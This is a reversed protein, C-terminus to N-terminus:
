MPSEAAAKPLHQLVLKLDEALVRLVLMQATQVFFHGGPFIRISFSNQTQKQWACLEDRSVRADTSGGFASISCELPPEARYVYNECVAFDARLVPLLLEMLEPDELVAEPTGGLERLQQQFELDARQHIPPYPNPLQPARHGSVILHVPSPLHQRRLQRALEFSVLAGMSHGFFAFPIGQYPAIGQVLDDLLPPLTSFPIGKHDTSHGPLLISCLETARQMDLPLEDFWSNYVSIGGAFPFCFLRLRATPNTKHRRVPNM